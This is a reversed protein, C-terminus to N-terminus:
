SLHAAHITGGAAVGGGLQGLRFPGKLGSIGGTAIVTLLAILALLLIVVWIGQKVREPIPMVFLEIVWIALYVVGCLVILGILFWLVGIAINIM